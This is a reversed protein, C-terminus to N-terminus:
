LPDYYGSASVEVDVVGDTVGPVAYTVTAQTHPGLRLEAGDDRALVSGAAPVLRRGSVRLVLSDLHTQEQEVEVVRLTIRGAVVPVRRVAHVDTGRRMRGRRNALVVFPELDRGGDGRFVIWPCSICDWTHTLDRATLSVTTSATLHMRRRVGNKDYKGRLSFTGEQGALLYYDGARPALLRTPSGACRTAKYPHLSRYEALGSWFGPDKTLGILAQMLFEDDKPYKSAPLLAVWGQPFACRVDVAIGSGPPPLPPPAATATASVTPAATPAASVTPAATAVPEAGADDEETAVPRAGEMAVCQHKQPDLVSGAPCIVIEEAQAGHTPGGCASLVLLAVMVIWRM